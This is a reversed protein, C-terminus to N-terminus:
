SFVAWTDRTEFDRTLCILVKISQSLEGEVPETRPNDLLDVDLLDVINNIKADHSGVNIQM